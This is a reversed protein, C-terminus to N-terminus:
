PQSRQTAGFANASITLTKGEQSATLAQRGEMEGHAAASM